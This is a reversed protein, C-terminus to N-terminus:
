FKLIVKPKNIKKKNKFLQKIDEFKVLQYIKDLSIKSKSIVKNFKLLDSDLKSNGGWSGYIRKGSILDHPKLTITDESKPHSVFYLKGYRSIFNLCKTIMKAQGSCEFCYDVGSNIMNNLKKEYNVNNSNILNKFGLKQLFSLRKSDNDMCIIKKIGIGKLAILAFIGVAGVGVVLCTTNKAPRAENLVVGMGTPISCGYLSAHKLSIYKPLKYIRSQDILSFSSFTSIPGYNINKKKTKIKGNEDKRKTIKKLWSLIVLDNSRIKKVGNGKSIVKGVAEHGFMHPLWKDIGRNGHYEMFQSGCVGSYYIEILAQNKKPRPLDLKYFNIKRKKELIAARANIKNM